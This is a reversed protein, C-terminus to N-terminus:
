SLRVVSGQRQGLAPVSCVAWTARAEHPTLVAAIGEIAAIMNDAALTDLSQMGPASYPLHDGAVHTHIFYLPAIESAPAQTAAAPYGLPLGGGGARSPRIDQSHTNGFCAIIARVV